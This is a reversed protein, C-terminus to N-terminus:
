VLNSEIGRRDVLLESPSFGDAEIGQAGVEMGQNPLRVGGAQTRAEVTEESDGRSM